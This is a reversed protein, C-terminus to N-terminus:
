KTRPNLAGQANRIANMFHYKAKNLHDEREKNNNSRMVLSLEQQGVGMNHSFSAVLDKAKIRGLEIQTTPM